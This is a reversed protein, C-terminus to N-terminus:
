SEEGLAFGLVNALEALAAGPDDVKITTMGLARAPKLNAGIDDLFIAEDPTVGTLECAHHYIRPDPKRLGVVSSEVFFDFHPRLVSGTGGGDDESAWNNTLATAFLSRERIRRVAELMAPRPATAAHMRGMMDAASLTHGRTECDAEFAPFFAEMSLEGRELRSWAGGPGSDVVVRNVVGSPLGIEREYAAIAHLPSGLVVGGLDFLVARFGM